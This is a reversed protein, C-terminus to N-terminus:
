FTPLAADAPTVFVDCFFAERLLGRDRVFDRRAASVMADVGCAYVDYDALSAFDKLVACHVLGTRGQWGDGANPESIVPVFRFSPHEAAWKRPLDIQYLDVPRRGGWYLFFRRQLGRKFADELMSKIPAFGTGSAVLIAPRPAERLYFDGFPIELRLTDGAALGALVRESFRGGPVLRVHLTAGDNQQPPNAMSFSRRAGDDLIVEVYQGARFKVRTGAPFRLQIVAVNEARRIIRLVKAQVTKRAAHDIKTVQRPAIEINTLAKAQCLLVQGEEVTPADVEGSIVRGLCSQCIGRRCSYPLEYGAAEAAALVTQGAACSFSIDSGAVRVLYTM